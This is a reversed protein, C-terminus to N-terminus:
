SEDRRRGIPTNRQLDTAVAQRAREIIDPMRRELVQEIAAADAAYIENHLTIGNMGGGGGAPLPNVQAGTPLMLLEPGFEGVLAMGGRRAMGGRAFPTPIGYADGAGRIVDGIVSGGGGTGLGGKFFYDLGILLLKRLNEKFPKLIEEDLM